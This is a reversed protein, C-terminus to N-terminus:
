LEGPRTCLHLPSLIIRYEYIIRIGSASYKYKHAYKPSKKFGFIIPIWIWAIKKLRIDNANTYRYNKLGFIMQIRIRTIKQFSIGTPIKDSYQSYKTSCQYKQHTPGKTSPCKESSWFLGDEWFILQPINKKSYEASGFIGQAGCSYNVRMYWLWMPHTMHIPLEKCKYNAETMLPSLLIIMVKQAVSSTKSGGKQSAWCFKCITNSWKQSAFHYEYKTMIPFGFSIQILIRDNRPFRIINKNTKPWKLLTQIRM